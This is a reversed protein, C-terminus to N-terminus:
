AANRAIAASNKESTVHIVWPPIGTWHFQNDCSDVVLGRGHLNAFAERKRFIGNGAREIAQSAPVPYRFNQDQGRAIPYLDGDGGLVVGIRVGCEIREHDFSAASLDVTIFAPLRNM